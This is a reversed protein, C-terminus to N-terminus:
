INFVSKGSNPLITNGVPCEISDIPSLKQEHTTPTMLWLRNLRNPYERQTSYYYNVAAPEISYATRCIYRIHRPMRSNRKLLEVLQSNRLFDFENNQYM